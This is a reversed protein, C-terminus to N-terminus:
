FDLGTNPVGPTVSQEGNSPTSPIAVTTGAVPSIGASNRAFVAVEYVVGNQLAAGKLKDFSYSRANSDLTALEVWEGGAVRARILYANIATNGDNLPPQWSISVSKGNLQSHVQQAMNPVETKALYVKVTRNGNDLAYVNGYADVFMTGSTTSGWMDEEKEGNVAIVKLAGTAPDYEGITASVSEGTTGNYQNIYGGIYVKGYRDIGIAYPSVSLYSGDPKTEGQGVISKVDQGNTNTSWVASTESNGDADWKSRNGGFYLRNDPGLAVSTTYSNEASSDIQGILSKEGTSMDYKLARYPTYSSGDSHYVTGVVYLSKSIPDLYASSTSVTIGDGSGTMPLMFTPEGGSPSYQAIIRSESTMGDSVSHYGIVYIQGQDDVQIGYQVNVYYSNNPDTSSMTRIKIQGIYNGSADFKQISRYM